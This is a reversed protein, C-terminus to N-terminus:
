EVSQCHKYIRVCSPHLSPFASDVLRPVFGSITCNSARFLPSPCTGPSARQLGLVCCFFTKKYEGSGEIEKENRKTRSTNDTGSCRIEVDQRV